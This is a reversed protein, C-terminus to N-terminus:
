PFPPPPGQWQKPRESIELMSLVMTIVSWWGSRHNIDNFDGLPRSAQRKTKVLQSM